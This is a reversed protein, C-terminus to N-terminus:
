TGEGPEDETMAPSAAGFSARLKSRWGAGDDAATDGSEGGSTWRVPGSPGSAHPRFPPRPPSPTGHLLELALAAAQRVDQV